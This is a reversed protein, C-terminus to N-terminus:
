TARQRTFYRYIALLIIAGIVAGIFGSPEFGADNNGFVLGSLFGGLLSGVIGLVMTTLCGMPDRGPMLLRAFAGAAIGFICWVILDTLGM